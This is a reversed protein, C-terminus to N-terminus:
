DDKPTAKKNRLFKWFNNKSFDCSHFSDLINLFLKGKAQDILDPHNTFFWMLFLFGEDSTESDGDFFITHSNQISQLASLAALIHFDNLDTEFELSNKGNKLDRDAHKFFNKAESTKQSWEKQREKRIISNDSRFNLLPIQLKNHDIYDNLIQLSAGVLTHISVPDREEFFLRIAEKLQSRAISIKTISIKITIVEIFILHKYPLLHLSKHEIPFFASFVM